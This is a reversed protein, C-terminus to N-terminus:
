KLIAFHKTKGGSSTMIFQNGQYSGLNPMYTGKHEYDLIKTVKREGNETFVFDYLAESEFLDKTIKLRGDKKERLDKGANLLVHLQGDNIFANYSHEHSKKFLSRAWKLRGSPDFKIVLIEDFHPVQEGVSRLDIGGTMFMRGRSTYYLREALLYVNGLTDKRIYDINFFDLEKDNQKEEREAGYIDNFVEMPLNEHYNEKIALSSRDVIITCGGKVYSDGNESYLGLLQVENAKLLMSLSKVHLSDLTIQLSNAEDRNIKSVIFSYNPSGKVREKYNELYQKGL